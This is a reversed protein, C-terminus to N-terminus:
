GIVAEQFRASPGSFRFPQKDRALARLTTFRIGDHEVLRELLRKLLDFAEPKMVKHHLLLGVFHHDLMQEFLRIATEGGPRPLSQFEFELDLTVPVKCMGDEGELSQVQNVSSSFAEFGLASLARLTDRTCAHWPPTFAPYWADQFVEHMRHQGAAIDALQQDFSRGPGFEAAPGGAEHNKHLWGHQHLELLGPAQRQVNRLYVGAEDTLLGPVVALSLPARLEQFLDILRRLSDEDLDVDDDRVFVTIPQRRAILDLTRSFVPTMRNPKPLIEM